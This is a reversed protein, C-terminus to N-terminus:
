EVVLGGVGGRYSIEVRNTATDWEPSAWGAGARGFRREDVQASGLAMQGSIRAAVGPPVRLRISAAGAEVLVSTLGAARPLAVRTESAGSHLDLRTVLLETLDLLTDSAGTRLDLAVPVEGTIGVRWRFGSWGGAWGAWGSADARLRVRGPGAPEVRGGGGLVGDVLRGPAAAGVELRGAGFEIRVEAAAAGALDVAVPVDAGGAPRWTADLLVGLGLAVILLPWWRGILEGADLEGGTLSDVLLLVGVAILVLPWILRSARM